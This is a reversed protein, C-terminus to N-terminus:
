MYVLINIDDLFIMDFISFNLVIVFIPCDVCLCIVNCVFISTSYDVYVYILIFHPVQLVICLFLIM